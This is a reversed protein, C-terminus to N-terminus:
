SAEAAFDEFVHSLDALTTKELYERARTNVDHLMDGLICNGPKCLRTKLLCESAVFKGEIAEYIDMLSIEGPKKALTAGGRPGRKSSVLGARSLRQMVKSLHNESVKLTDAIYKTSVPVGNEQASILTMSHLAISAAESVNMIGSM